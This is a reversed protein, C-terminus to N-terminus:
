LHLSSTCINQRGVFLIPSLILAALFLSWSMRPWVVAFSSLCLWILEIIKTLPQFRRDRRQRDDGGFTTMRRFHMEDIVKRPGNGGRGGAAGHMVAQVIATIQEITAM